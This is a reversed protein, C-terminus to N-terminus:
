ELHALVSDFNSWNNNKLKTVILQGSGIIDSIFRFDALFPVAKDLETTQMFTFLIQHSIHPNRYM